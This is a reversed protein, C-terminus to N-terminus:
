MALLKHIASYMHKRAVKQTVSYMYKRVVFLKPLKCDLM